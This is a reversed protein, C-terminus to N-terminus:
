KRKVLASVAVAEPICSAIQRFAIMSQPAANERSKRLYVPRTMIKVGVTAIVENGFWNLGNYGGLCEKSM